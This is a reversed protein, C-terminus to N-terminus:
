LVPVWYKYGGRYVARLGRKPLETEPVGLYTFHPSDNVVTQYWGNRNLIERVKRNVQQEIDFALLSLHQSTGPPAVSSMIPRNKGTSFYIGKAEWEFVQVVQEPIPMKLANDASKPTIKGRRTWYNLAPMFRSNWIRVTDEFSRKGAIEGDLPTISLGRSEAESVARLLADMAATQLEITVGGINGTKTKLTRQFKQVEEESTFLCTPPATVSESAAFISGYEAFVRGVVEDVGAPCEKRIAARSVPQPWGSNGGVLIFGFVPLFLRLFTVM